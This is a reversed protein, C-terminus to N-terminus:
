SQEGLKPTSHRPSFLMLGVATAVTLLTVAAAGLPWNRAALFQNQLFTGIVFVRGGGILDPILFEGLSPVFVLVAAAALGKRSLPWLIRRILELRTAGLDRAAEIWSQEIQQFEAQLPLIALPLYTIVLAILVGAPTYLIQFPWFEARMLEMM